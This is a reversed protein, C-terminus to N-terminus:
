GGPAAPMTTSWLWLVWLAAALGPGFPVRLDPDLRGGGRLLAVALTALAGLLVLMPLWALGLWAGGAALLKADGAGLGDRGRLRRYGRAIGLFLLYGLLCAGAHDALMAPGLLACSVLGLLLLPLTLVDPLRFCRWDIWGLALLIWGLGCGSWVWAQVWGEPLDPSLRGIQALVVTAAVALAALEIGPHLRGIPAACHRCRGRLVVYSLLPVLDRAGLVTGCTECASRAMGVPRGDPLRLVLVGLFSGVVPALLLPALSGPSM